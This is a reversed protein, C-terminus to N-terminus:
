AHLKRRWSFPLLLLLLSPSSGPLPRHPPPPSGVGRLSPRSAASDSLRRPPWSSCGPGGRRGRWARRGPPPAAPRRGPWGPSAAWAWPRAGARGHKGAPWRGLNKKMKLSKLFFNEFFERRQWFDCLSVLFQLLASSFQHPFLSMFLLYSFSSSLYMSSEWCIPFLVFWDLWSWANLTHKNKESNQEQFSCIAFCSLPSRLVMVSTDTLPLCQRGERWIM